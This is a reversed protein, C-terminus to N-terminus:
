RLAGAPANPGRLRHGLDPRLVAPRPSAALGGAPAFNGLAIDGYLSAEDGGITTGTAGAPVAAGSFLHNGAMKLDPDSIGGQWVLSRLVNGSILCYGDPNYGLDGRLLMGQMLSNHAIVVHSQLNRALQSFLNHRNQYGSTIDKDQAANNLFLADRLNTTAASLFLKQGAFGTLINDAVAVNERTGLGELLQWFDAHIGFMTVVTLPTARVDTAAFGNGDLGALSCATARHTNDLLTASWGGLSNLWDVVNAITYNTGALFAADGKQVVMSDVVAGDVRATFTRSAADSEDSLELTASAGAGAYSVSFAPRETLWDVSDWDEIRNGVVCDADTACDFYGRLLHCGRVLSAGSVMNPLDSIACETIWPRFRAFGFTRPGGNWLQGRGGSNTVTVGDFWHNRGTNAVEAHIADMNKMDFTIARGKFHMGDYNTRAAANASVSFAPKAITIPQTAEITAYGKGAWIAWHGRLLDYSGAETVTIRPNNAQQIDLYELAKYITRYRQGTIEVPTAAVEIERDHITGTAPFPDHPSFQHPGSVRRQMSGDAPVAEFYVQAHGSRDAPKHLLAWWGWYAVPDGNADTFSALTPEPIDVSNGEFHVIVRDLGMRQFLSGRDNAAAFVGVLLEQAFYQNPPVLLRLAPKATTRVPDAPVTTFGSGAVGTWGAGPLVVPPAFRRRPHHHRKRYGFGFGFGPM